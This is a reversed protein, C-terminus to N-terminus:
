RYTSCLLCALSFSRRKWLGWGRRLDALGGASCRLPYGKRIQSPNIYRAVPRNPHTLAVSPSPAVMGVKRTKTVGGEQARGPQSARPCDELVGRFSGVSDNGPWVWVSTAGAFARVLGVSECV